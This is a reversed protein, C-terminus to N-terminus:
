SQITRMGALVSRVDDERTLQRLVVLQHVHVVGRPSWVPVAGGALSVLYCGGLDPFLRIEHALSVSAMGGAGPERELTYRDAFAARLALFRRSM